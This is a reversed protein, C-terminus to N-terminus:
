GGHRLARDVRDDALAEGLALLHLPGLAAGVQQQLGAGAGEVAGEPQQELAPIRAQGVVVSGAGTLGAAAYIGWM